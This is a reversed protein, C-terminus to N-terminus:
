SPRAGTAGGSVELRCTNDPKDELFGLAHMLRSCDSRINRTRDLSQM